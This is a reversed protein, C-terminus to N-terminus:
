GSRTTRSSASSRGPATSSAPRRRRTTLLSVIGDAGEPTDALEFSDALAREVEVPLAVPSM